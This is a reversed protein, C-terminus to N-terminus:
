SQGDDVKVEMVYGDATKYLRDEENGYMYEIMVGAQSMLDNYQDRRMIIEHPYPQVILSQTANFEGEIANMLEQGTQKLDTINLTQM